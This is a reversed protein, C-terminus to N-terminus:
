TTQWCSQAPLGLVMRPDCLFLPIAYPESFNLRLIGRILVEIELIGCVRIGLIVIM